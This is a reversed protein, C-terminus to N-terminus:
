GCIRKLAYYTAACIGAGLAYGFRVHNNEKDILANYQKKFPRHDPQYVSLDLADLMENQENDGELLGHKKLIARVITKDNDAWLIQVHRRGEKSILYVNNNGREKLGYYLACADNYSLQPDHKSHVIVVPMNTPIDKISNIAQKGAPWYGFFVSKAFYPLWYYSFPLKAVASMNMLPGNVTHHVASNGSGLTAELVLAQIRTGKDEHAVYNIATATGQSTAHIISGQNDSANIAERLHMM